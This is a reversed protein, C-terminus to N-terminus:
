VNAPGNFDISCLKTETRTPHIGTVKYENGMWWFVDDKKVDLTHMGLLLYTTDPISGAESNVLGNDYRRKNQIIRAQQPVLPEDPVNVLGGAATRTPTSRRVFSVEVPDAKIFALVVRRRMILETHNM